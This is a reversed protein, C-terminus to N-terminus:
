DLSRRPRLRQVAVKVMVVYQVMRAAAALLPADTDKGDRVLNSLPPGDAWEPLQAHRDARLLRVCGEGDFWRLIAGTDHEDSAPKFCKLCAPGEGSRVPQLLSSFTEFGDGRPQLDWRRCQREVM